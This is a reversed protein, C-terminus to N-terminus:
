EIFYIEVRGEEGPLIRNLITIELKNDKNYCFDVNEEEFIVKEVDRICEHQIKIDKIAVNGTNKLKIITKNKTNTVIADIRSIENDNEEECEKKLNEETEQAKYFRIDPKRSDM